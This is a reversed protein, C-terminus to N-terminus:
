GVGWQWNVGRLYWGILTLGLYVFLLVVFAIKVRWATLEKASAMWFFLFLLILLGMVVWVPESSWHLIEQLGVFYWPGKILQDGPHHLPAAFLASLLISSGTVLVTARWDPWIRKGHEYSIVAVFLTVTAVHHIYLIQMDSEPGLLLFELRSGLVPIVQLMSGFIRRALEGEADGKLMFGSLMIYLIAPVLAVIRAWAMPKYKRENYKLLHEIVHFVTVIVLLQGSWYHIDRFFAASPNSLLLVQLSRFPDRIDYALTVGVGSGIAVLFAALSIVGFAPLVRNWHNFLQESRKSM